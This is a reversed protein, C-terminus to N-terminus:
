DCVLLPQDELCAQFAQNKRDSNYTYEIGIFVKPEMKKKQSVPSVLSVIDRGVGGVVETLLVIYL